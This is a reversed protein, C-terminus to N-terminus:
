QVAGLMRAATHEWTFRKATEIGPRNLLRRGEQKQAHTRRMHAIAQEMQKEGLAAWQGNGFFWRGDYAEELADIEILLANAADCYETHASYNTAIVPKGCSMMELLPLNWGEARSLFVGCDAQRMTAAVERQDALRPLIKIKEALPCSKYLTEWQQNKAVTASRDNGIVPNFTLMWLEVDDQPCFASNFIELLVDHGKRREWKGVSLFVTTAGRSQGDDRPEHFVARDVGLPVVDIAGKRGAGSAEVIERAWGCTVFLRDQSRLHNLEAESFRDLEFIPFGIRPFGVHEALHNQHAIRISPAHGDFCKQREVAEEILQQEDGAADIRGIPWFAVQRGARRLAKLVNLGVVGYGLHNIPCILNIAATRAEGNGNHHDPILSSLHPILPEELKPNQIKSKPNSGEGEPLPNPHPHNGPSNVDFVEALPRTTSRAGEGWGEGPRLPPIAVSSPGRVVSTQGIRASLARTVKGFVTKWDGPRPQRFLRMTPYWPSDSRDTMWRWDAAFPLVVWVPRGMAGALHAISTDSTIVLDLHQLIAATDMFPGAAGDVQVGFDIVPFHNAVGVLQEAGPGKQLNVLRVGPLDALPQFEALPLSRYRDGTWAPNGQWAIGILFPLTPLQPNPTPTPAVLAFRQRWKEVLKPDASLYPAEAPVDGATTRLLAPLSMLAAQVDHEPLGAGRAVACDYDDRPAHHRRDLLRVLEPQCEVVVKGGTRKALAAYRIFQLTDGLGQEAYVLLTRGALPSGDWRPKDSPKPRATPLRERWEYELWGQEFRGLSLLARGLNHHAEIYDPRLELARRYCEAAEAPRALQVLAAALNNVNEASGPTRRLAHRFECVAEEFRGQEYYALGLNGYADTFDPDVQLTKRFSSVAKVLRNQRAQVVGLNHHAAAFAPHLEVARSLREEAEALKGEKALAIGAAHEREAELRPNEIRNDTTLQGHDTAVSLQRRVVSRSWLEEAMREFLEAWNEAERQRFIRMSPYWPSREGSRMWRWDAVAPLAMWVPVGLAGALHPMATDSTIVLDVCKMIAATDMFAGAEEDISGLDIVPFKGDLDALQETGFGKQLSVLQVGPIAALPAFARLPISRQRDGRYQPNGQWAIGILFSPTPPQPGPTPAYPPVLSSALAPGGHDDNTPPGAIAGCDQGVRRLKARWAEVLKEDPFLYPVEDPVTDLTTRFVAPLSLLPIQLDFEPLPGGVPVLEDIHRSGSLLKLLSKQAEVIVRAGRQKLLRMYRIFQLTDGVGQELYVFVTRGDLDCGDWRRQKFTRRNVDKAMWRWEYETWGQEFDGAALWALSRNLHAEPYDPRFVMAREYNTVAEDDQGWQVLAIGLNNYAEAYDSKLRIARRLSSVSEDIQGLARLSNGLNNLALPSDPTLALAQRYSAVAEEYRRQAALAVGLNNHVDAARPRTALAQRYAAEAEQLRGRGELLIGLNNLAEPFDPKLQLAKRYSEEAENPKKLEALVLGLDHHAEALSKPNQIKSKPNGDSTEPSQDQTKTAEGVTKQAAELPWNAIQLKCNAIEGRGESERGQEAELLRVGEGEPLPNPHPVDRQNVDLLRIAERYQDAAEAFKGLAKLSAAWDRHCPHSDPKLEVAQQFAAAAEQKRGRQALAVGLNRRTDVSDPKLELARGFIAIADDLKRQKALAVGLDHMATADRPEHEIVKRLEAEARDFKGQKIAAAAEARHAAAPSTLTATM